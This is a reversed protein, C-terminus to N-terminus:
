IFYNSILDCFWVILLAANSRQIIKKKRININQQIQTLLWKLKVGHPRSEPSFYVM